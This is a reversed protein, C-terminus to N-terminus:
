TKQKLKMIGSAIMRSIEKLEQQLREVSKADALQVDSLLALWYETENASKLSVQYFRKYELRSSSAKAEILNAGISTASRIIQDTIVWAARKNPLEETLKIVSLSFRYCRGRLDTKYEQM